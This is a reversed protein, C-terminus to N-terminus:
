GKPTQRETNKTMTGDRSWITTQGVKVVGVDMPTLLEDPHDGALHTHDVQCRIGHHDVSLTCASRHVM